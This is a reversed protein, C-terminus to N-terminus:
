YEVCYMPCTYKYPYLGSDIIVHGEAELARFARYIKKNFSKEKFQPYAYLFCEKIEKFTLSRFPSCLFFAIWYKKISQYEFINEM